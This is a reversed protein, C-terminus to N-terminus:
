GSVQPGLLEDLEFEQWIRGAQQFGVPFREFNRMKVDMAGRRLRMNEGHNVLYLVAHFPVTRIKIGYAALANQQIRHFGRAYLPELFADGDRFDARVAACSGCHNNFAGPKWRPFRRRHLDAFRRSAVDLMYGSEILYGSEDRQRLVYDVFDPHLLDDADLMFVYGDDAFTRAVYELTQRIKAAKDIPKPREPDLPVPPGPYPLFHVRSDPQCHEPADQGCIVARWRGCSQGRLGALTLDLNAVVRPWEFAMARAILPVVFTVVADKAVPLLPNAAQWARGAARV